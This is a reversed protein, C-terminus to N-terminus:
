LVCIIKGKKQRTMKESKRRQLNVERVYVKEETQLHAPMVTILLGDM